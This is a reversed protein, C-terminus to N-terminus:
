VWPQRGLFSAPSSLAMDLTQPCEGRPASGRRLAQGPTLHWSPLPEAHLTARGRWLCLKSRSVQVCTM